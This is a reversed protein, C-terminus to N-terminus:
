FKRLLYRRTDVVYAISRISSSWRKAMWGSSRSGIRTEIRAVRLEAELARLYEEDRRELEMPEYEYKHTTSM